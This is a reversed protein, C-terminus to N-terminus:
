HRPPASGPGAPRSREVVLEMAREIPIHVVGNQRDIWGYSDLQSEEAARKKALDEVPFVQLRPTPPLQQAPVPPYGAGERPLGTFYRFTFWAVVAGVVILMMLGIGFLAVKGVSVDRLEHGATGLEPPRAMDSM